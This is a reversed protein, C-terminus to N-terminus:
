LPPDEWVVEIMTGEGPRTEIALNAGIEGARERMIKLGLRDGTVAAPDFGRGDDRITLRACDQAQAAELRIVVQRASAHKGINTLAEQAIRYFVPKVQIPLRDPNKLDIQTQLQAKAALADALQRILVEFDSRELSDPRLTLLLTRMEAMAGRTMVQLDRLAERAAEPDRDSLFPLSEATISAAFLTQSVADHLDRALRQREQLAAVTQAQAYLQANRIAVGAQEAFALLRNADDEEFWDPEESNLNLFGIVQGEVQIPAGIYSRIWSSAPLSVWAGGASEVNAVCVPQGTEAMRRFNGVQAIAVLNEELTRLEDAAYGRGRVAHALDGEILMVNSTTHPVVRGVVELIRDLLHDLDLTSALARATDRLAEALMREQREAQEARRTQTTDRLLMLRGQRQGRRDQIPTLRLDFRREVGQDSVAVEASAEDMGSLYDILYTWRALAQRAPRGIVAEASVGLLRQAAPNLDVVRDQGDLVILAESMSSLVAHHAIPSVELLRIRLLAWAIIALGITVTLPLIDRQPTLPIGLLTLATGALPLWIGLLIATIQSRYLRQASRFHVLLLFSAIGVMAYSWATIAYVAPTFSYTLADFPPAAIVRVDAPVILGHWSNTATLLLFVAPLVGIVPWRLRPRPMRRGTYDLALALYGGTAALLGIWQTQDWFLKGELSPSILELIYAFNVQIYSATM